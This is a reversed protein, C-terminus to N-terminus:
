QRQHGAGVPMAAACNTCCFVAGNREVRTSPDVIPSRRDHLTDVYEGGVFNQLYLESM